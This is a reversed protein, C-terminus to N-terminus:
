TFDAGEKAISMRESGLAHWDRQASEWLLYAAVAGARTDSPDRQMLDIEVHVGMEYPCIALVQAEPIPAINSLPLCAIDVEGALLARMPGGGPLGILTEGPLAAGLDALLRRLMDGSTGTQTYGICQGQAAWHGLAGAIAARDTAPASQILASRTRAAFALPTRLLPWHRAGRLHGQARLEEVHHPNSLALDWAVGAAIDEAVEPNLRSVRALPLVPAGPVSFLADFSETLAIPTLIRLAQTM